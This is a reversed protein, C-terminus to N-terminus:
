KKDLDRKLYKFPYSWDGRKQQKYLQLSSHWYSPSQNNGWRWDSTFPLLVKTPRGLAGALFVTTNDISVVQDCACILSALGDIDNRNDIEEVSIVDIGHDKALEKVEQGTDGYQLNVLQVRNHDLNKVLNELEISKYKNISHKLTGGRWSIGYAVPKKDSNLKNKIKKTLDANHKLYPSSTKEFSKLSPRFYLGLSGMPLHCDYECEFVRRTSSIFRIDKSFSRKFLPILREDLQITLQGVSKNLEEFMSAFMIQDGLGQEDWLLVRDDKRTPDWKPNSTKLKKTDFGKSGWRAEYASWGDKFNNNRLLDLALATEAEQSQPKHILSRKFSEIAASTDGSESQVVGLNYRAQFNTPDLKVAKRLKIKADKSQGAKNLLQGMNSLASVHNSDIKLATEYCKLSEKEDFTGLAAGLNSHLTPDTPRLKIAKRFSKAASKNEERNLLILALGNHSEYMDPTLKIAKRFCKLAEKDNNQTKFAEGLKQHAESDQPDIKIAKQFYSIATALDNNKANLEGLRVFGTNWKAQYEAIKKYNTIAQDIEGLERHADGFVLCIIASNPYSKQLKLGRKIAQNYRGTLLLENLEENDDNTPEQDNIKLFHCLSQIRECFLGSERAAQAVTTAETLRNLKILTDIYSAWFLSVNPSTGLAIKFLELAKLYENQAVYLAGLNHNTESHKPDISLINEYLTKAVNFDATNHAKLATEFIESIGEYSLSSDM